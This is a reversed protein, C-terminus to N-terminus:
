LRVASKTEPGRARIIGKSVEAEWPAVSLKQAPTTRYNTDNSNLVRLDTTRQM